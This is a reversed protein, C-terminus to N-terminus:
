KYVYTYIYICWIRTHTHTQWQKDLSQQPIIEALKQVRFTWFSHRWSLQCPLMGQCFRLWPRLWPDIRLPIASSSRPQSRPIRCTAKSFRLRSNRGSRPSVQDPEPEHQRPGTLKQSFSWLASKQCLLVLQIFQRKDSKERFILNWLALHGLSCMVHRVM